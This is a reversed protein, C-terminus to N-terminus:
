EVRLHRESALEFVVVGLNTLPASVTLQPTDTEAVEAIRATSAAIYPNGSGSWFGLTQSTGRDIAYFASGFTLPIFDFDTIDYHTHSSSQDVAEQRDLANEIIADAITDEEFDFASTRREFDFDLDSVQM